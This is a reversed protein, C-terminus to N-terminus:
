QVGYIFSDPTHLMSVRFEVLSHLITLKPHDSPLPPRWGESVLRQMQLFQATDNRM